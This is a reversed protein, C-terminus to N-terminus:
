SSHPYEVRTHYITILMRKFIRKIRAIDRFTIDSNVFQGQEIQADIINEVLDEIIEADIKKLSRSAAEVSDAMMLVATEKSFPVPGPYTFANLDAVKDPFNKLFSQYFYQVRNTGHHTRIFDVIQEPLNHKDAIEVGKLVHGIIINASQEFSLEDHPNVGSVQNEIFYRPNDMKGIDHYMAGTRVLLTNGRIQAIASEALNAVQLSHQFTGPAKLALLRLLPSNTDALEMLSVESIIGFVKEFIYILPYATLTLLANAGFWGLNVWNVSSYNESHLKSIGVYSVLYALFIFGSTIFLQSRKRLSVISFIAVMGAIMQMFVFEFGNPAIFGVILMVLIHIFLAMRTDFFAKIMMPVICFPIIYVSFLNTRLSWNYTAVMIIILLLPIIIKRNDEFVDKRFFSLFFYLMLIIITVIILQGTAINISNSKYGIRTEYETKLSELLRLKKKDVLEGTSIIHEGKQMIGISLSINDLQDQYVQRTLADDYFVNTTLANELIPSLFKKDADHNNDLVNEIYKFASQQTFLQSIEKEEADKDKLVMIITSTPKKEFEENLFIIGKDYVAGLVAAGIDLQKAKDISDILPNNSHKILSWKTDADKLFSKIKSDKVDEKFKFYSKVHELVKARESSLEENSKNIGFDFPASLEEHLWPKGLEYEYKFSVDKPLLFVIIIVAAIGLLVKFVEEHRNSFFQFIRNM